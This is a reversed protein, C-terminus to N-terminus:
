SKSKLLRYRVEVRHSGASGDRRKEVAVRKGQAALRDLADRKRVSALDNGEAEVSM